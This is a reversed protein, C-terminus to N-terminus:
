IENKEVICPLVNFRHTVFCEKSNWFAQWANLYLKSQCICINATMAMPLPWMIKSNHHIKPM